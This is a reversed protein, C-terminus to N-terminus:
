LRPVNGQFLLLDEGTDNLLQELALYFKEPLKHADVTGIGICSIGRWRVNGNFCLYGSENRLLHTLQRPFGYQM